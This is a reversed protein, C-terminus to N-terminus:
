GRQRTPSTRTGQARVGAISRSPETRDRSGDTPRSRQSGRRGWASTRSQSKTRWERACRNRSASFRRKTFISMVCSARWGSKRWCSRPAWILLRRTTSIFARFLAGEGADNRGGRSACRAMPRVGRESNRVLRGFCFRDPPGAGILVFGKAFLPDAIREAKTELIGVCRHGIPITVDASFTAVHFEAASAPSVLLFLIATLSYKCM